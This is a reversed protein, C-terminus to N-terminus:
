TPPGAVPVRWETTSTAGPMRFTAATPLAPRTDRPVPSASPRPFSGTAAASTSSRRPAASSPRSSAQCALRRAAAASVLDGTDLGAVKLQGTLTAHDLTVVVKVAVKGHLHDTPLRELLHTFAVGREHAPDRDLTPVGVQAVSAGLRGRRPSTMADLVKRLVAGALMPVTFHGTTTGDGDDHLMLRARGLARQEEGEVLHNEHADVVAPDPEVAALAPRAHRRLTMPDVQRADDALRTEAVGRQDPSLGVPLRRM